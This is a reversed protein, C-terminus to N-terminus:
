ATEATSWAPLSDGGLVAALTFVGSQRATVVDVVLVMVVVVVVMPGM